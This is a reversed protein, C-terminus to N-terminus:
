ERPGLTQARRLPKVIDDFAPPNGGLEVLKGHMVRVEDQSDLDSFSQMQMSSTVSHGFWMSYINTIQRAKFNFIRRLTPDAQAQLSFVATVSLTYDNIKEFVEEATGM